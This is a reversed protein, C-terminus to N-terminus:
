DHSRLWYKLDGFLWGLALLSPLAFKTSEWLGLLICGPSLSIPKCPVRFDCFSVGVDDVFFEHGVRIYSIRHCSGGNNGDSDGNGGGLGQTNMEEQLDKKNDRTRM